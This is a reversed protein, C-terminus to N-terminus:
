VAKPHSLRPEGLLGDGDRNPREDQGRHDESDLGAQSGPKDRLETHLIEVGDRPSDFLRTEANTPKLDETNFKHLLERKYQLLYTEREVYLDGNDRAALATTTLSCLQLILKVIATKFDFYVAVTITAAIFTLFLKPVLSVATKGILRAEYRKASRAGEGLKGNTSLLYDTSCKKPKARNARLIAKQYRKPLLASKELCEKRTKGLYESEFVDYRMYPTVIRRRRSDLDALMQKEIWRDIETYDRQVTTEREAEYRTLEDAYKAAWRGDESKTRASFVSGYMFLILVGFIVAAVLNQKAVSLSAFGGSIFTFAIAFLYILIPVSSKVINAARKKASPTFLDDM